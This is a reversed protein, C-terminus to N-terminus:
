LISVEHKDFWPHVDSGVPHLLGKSLSIERGRGWREGAFKLLILDVCIRTKFLSLFTLLSKFSSSFSEARMRDMEGALYVAGSDFWWTLWIGAEKHFVDYLILHNWLAM